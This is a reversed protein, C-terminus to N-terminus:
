KALRCNFKAAVSLAFAATAVTSKAIKAKVYTCLYTHLYNFRCLLLFYIYPKRPITQCESPEIYDSNSIYVAVASNNKSNYLFLWFIYLFVYKECRAILAM